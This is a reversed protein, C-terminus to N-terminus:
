NTTDANQKNKFILPALTLGFLLLILIVVFVILLRKEGGEGNIKGRLRGNESQLRAVERQLRANDDLVGQFSSTSMTLTPVLPAQEGSNPDATASVANGNAESM